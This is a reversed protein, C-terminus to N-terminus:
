KHLRLKLTKSNMVSESSNFCIGVVHSQQKSLNHLNATMKNFYSVSLCVLLLLPGYKLNRKLIEFLLIVSMVNSALKSHSMHM